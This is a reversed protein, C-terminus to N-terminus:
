IDMEIEILFISFSCWKSMMLGTSSNSYNKFSTILISEHALQTNPSHSFYDVLSPTANSDLYQNSDM